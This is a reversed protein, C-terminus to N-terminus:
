PTDGTLDFPPVADLEDSDLHVRAHVPPRPAPREDGHWFSVTEEQGEGLEAETILGNKHAV